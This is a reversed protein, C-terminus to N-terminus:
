GLRVLIKLAAAAPGPHAHLDEEGATVLRKLVDDGVVEMRM